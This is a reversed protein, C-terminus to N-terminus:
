HPANALAATHTYVTAASCAAQKAELRGPQQQQQPKSVALVFKM